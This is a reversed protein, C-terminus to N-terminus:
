AYRRPVRRAIACLVEDPVTRQIDAHEWATIRCHETGGILTVEDGVQVEGIVTVDLLTVDMSIIGVIPAYEDRVIARGRSSLQRSLGDAFGVPLVALRTPATTVYTGNYGVRQNAGVDHLSIIRTKWALVPAVAPDTVSRNVGDAVFRAYYGFLSIGPRVMNNWTAPHAAVAASNAVHFYAPRFEAERITRRASEWCEMQEAVDPSDMQESSALHTFVGELMVGPASKLSQLVQPLTGAHAGMRALGTDVKLHVPFPACGREYIVRALESVHWPEWVSPTLRYRVVDSEEGQWYGTLLLIRSAIGADRLRVGEETSTVAFWSAGEQQLARACEVAGHGTADGKLVACVVVRAGVHQQLHRFNQRM